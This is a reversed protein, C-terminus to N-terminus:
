ALILLVVITSFFIALGLVISWNNLRRRLADDITFRDLDMDLKYNLRENDM